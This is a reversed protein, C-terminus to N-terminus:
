ITDKKNVPPTETDPNKSPLTVHTVGRPDNNEESKPHPISRLPNAEGFDIKPPPPDTPESDQSDFVGDGEDIESIDADMDQSVDDQKTSGVLEALLEDASAEVAQVDIVGSSQMALRLSNMLKDRMVESSDVKVTEVRHTFLSVETIKGLLELCKIQQAPPVNVDLAKETLKHITLARLHAPTQYKQAEMAVKFADIQAQIADNKALAQGHRSATRPSAKSKRGNPRSQRYAEAKTKGKAIEEAFKIQSATLRKEKSTSVGLLITEVPIQELTEAIQKKTLRTM